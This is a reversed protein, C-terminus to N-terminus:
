SAASSHTDFIQLFRILRNKKHEEGLNTYIHILNTMTRCLIAHANIALLYSPKFPIDSVQLIEVCDRRSLVRGRNFPDVFVNNDPFRFQVIFHLPLGIGVLPLPKNKWQIRKSLLLCVCSLSIPIGTKRALVRHIYSNEPDYYNTHNGHFGQQEFLYEKFSHIVETTTTHGSIIQELERAMRDLPGQIQARTASPDGYEALAWCGEELDVRAVGGRLLHHISHELQEARVEEMLQHVRNWTSPDLNSKLYLQWAPDKRILNKFNQSLVNLTKGSEEELLSCLSRFEKESLSSQTQVPQHDM